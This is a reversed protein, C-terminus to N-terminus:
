GVMDPLIKKVSLCRM